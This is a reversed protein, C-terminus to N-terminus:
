CPRTRPQRDIPRATADSRWAGTDAIYRRRKRLQRDKDGQRLGARGAIRGSSTGRDAKSFATDHRILRWCTEATAPGAM